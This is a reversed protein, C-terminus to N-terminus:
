GDEVSVGKAACERCIGFLKMTHSTVTFGKSQAAMEQRRELEPDHFEIIAGCKTCLMHDHHEHGLVHEYKRGGDGANFSDVFGGAELVSLTRYVTARSVSRDVEHCRALLDEATFHDHTDFVSRVILQRQQTWRLGHGHVYTRVVGEEDFEPVEKGDLAM